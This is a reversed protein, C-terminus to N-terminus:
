SVDAASTLASKNRGGAKGPVYKDTSTGTIDSKKSQDAGMM